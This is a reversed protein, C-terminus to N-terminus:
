EAKDTEREMEIAHRRHSQGTQQTGHASGPRAPPSRSPQRASAPPRRRSAHTHHTRVTRAQPQRNRVYAHRAQADIPQRGEDTCVWAVRWRRSRKEGPSSAQSAAQTPSSTRRRQPEDPAQETAGSMVRLSDRGSGLTEDPLTCTVDTQTGIRADVHAGVGVEETGARVELRPLGSGNCGLVRVDLM